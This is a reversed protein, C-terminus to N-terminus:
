KKEYRSKKERCIYDWSCDGCIDRRIGANIIKERVLGIFESFSIESGVKLGCVRLVTEDYHQVKEQTICIGGENNLCNRCVIDTEAKLVVKQGPNAELERIM